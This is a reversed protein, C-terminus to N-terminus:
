APEGKRAASALLTALHKADESSITLSIRTAGEFMEVHVGKFVPRINIGDLEARWRALGAKDAAFSNPQPSAMSETDSM